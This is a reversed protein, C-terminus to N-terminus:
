ETDESLGFIERVADAYYPGLKEEAEARLSEVPRHILKSVIADAMRNLAERLEPPMAGIRTATREVEQRAVGSAYDILERITPAAELAAYWSEFREREAAVIQEAQAAAERRSERGREAIGDLDDLDYLYVGELDNVASDVNRPVGLDILLLPRGQRDRTSLRIEEVGLLPRAVAVSIVAADAGALEVAVESLPAARGSLARALQEATELTRNLVVIESVGADRFGYLASEAMEGAGILVVRKGEFTEFIEEALQVGVRAVSILSAGLGTETRVRKATRFSREFLRHLVPGCARAAIATRYADKVQGLIQAEGLVMSDLSSGVRFLHTVVEAGRFEYFQEEEASGDGIEEHFFRYLSELTEEPRSSLTLLETRNCTSIIAAESITSERVLKENAGLCEAPTVSYRERVAIPATQHSLGLLLLNM